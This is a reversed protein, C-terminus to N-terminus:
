PASPSPAWDLLKQLLDKSLVPKTLQDDFLAGWPQSALESIDNATFAVIPTLDNPGQGDRLAQAAAPGDVSPMRIDMLIIDFAAEQALGVAELGGGAETVCVGYPSSMLRILERNLPNDDAVLLRLGKLRDTQEIIAEFPEQVGSAASCPLEFWFRSGQGVISDAGVSGAMAEALGKCIALGLGTGGHARTTSADVQSFRKFLRSLGEEAIGAGTDIVECLLRQADADYRGKLGISGSDTFKVANSLFNLLIQRVRVDDLVLLAPMAEEVDLRLMLGKEAAQLELLSLAESLMRKPDAPRRDIEVQGAELKSFDLIDNVITLLAQGSAAIRDVSQRGLDSLDRESDLLSSYGLISTLPTRLEHSMNSLFETKVAAAAEAASRAQELEMELQKRGTIDRVVDQITTPRGSDNFFVKPQGELWLCRGDKHYARFQFPDSAGGPGLAFLAGYYALVGEVDDEHMLDITRKGLLEEPRYGLTAECGPSVFLIEGGIKTRAIMERANNALLRYRAESRALAAEAIKRATIDRIVDTVGFVEGTAEDKAGSPRAEVWLSSGNKHILRYEIQAGDGALLAARFAAVAMLADDPHIFDIASRGIVDEVAYGMMPTVAPSVYEFRGQRDVRTVLDNANETLLRYRAESQEVADLARVADTVDQFVGYVAVTKGNADLESRAKCTVHRLEGDRRYLRLQFTFPKQEELAAQVQANVSAQDDPHYFSISADLNPDFTQRDVGHIRYVEDSWFVRHRAADLRWHGIGAMAEAMQLLNSKEISAESAKSLELEDMVMQALQRLRGLDKTSFQPRPKYGILCLTGLCAGQSTALVAGAYFRVGPSGTVLPNLRFRDDKLADPVVLVCGPGGAAAHECFAWSRPTESVDLGHSSKFWQRERDLLSVLAVPTEFIDAALSTIRDFREDKPTDLINYSQLVDQREAESMPSRRLAKPTVPAAFPHRSVGGDTDVAM